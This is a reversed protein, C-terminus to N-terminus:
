TIVTSIVNTQKGIPKDWQERFHEWVRVSKTVTDSIAYLAKEVEIGENFSLLVSSEPYIPFDNLTAPSVDSVYIIATADPNTILIATRNNNTEVIKVSSTSVDVKQIPL